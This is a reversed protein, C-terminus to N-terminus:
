ANRSQFDKMFNVLADVGEINMVEYNSM